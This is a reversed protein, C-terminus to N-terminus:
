CIYIKVYIYICPNKNKPFILEYVSASIFWPSYHHINEKLKSVARENQYENNNTNIKFHVITWYIAFIPNNLLSPEM